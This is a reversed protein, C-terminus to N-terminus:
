NEAAILLLTEKATKQNDKLFRCRKLYMMTQSVGPRLGQLTWPTHQLHGQGEGGETASRTSQLVWLFPFPLSFPKHNQHKEPWMSDNGKGEKTRSTFFISAPSVGVRHSFM